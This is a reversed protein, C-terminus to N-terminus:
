IEIVQTEEEFEELNFLMVAIDKVTQKEFLEALPISVGFEKSIRSQLLIAKLSHGGLDFFSSSTSILNHPINLVEAWIKIIKEEIENGPLIFEAESKIEPDPLRNYDIKGSTNLPIEDIEVYFSPIMYEPLKSSLFDKFEKDSCKESIKVKDGPFIEQYFPIKKFSDPTNMSIYEFKEIKNNDLYLEGQILYDPNLGNESLKRTIKAKLYNGKSVKIGQYFIPFYVPLWISKEEITDIVEQEDCYLVLWVILGNFVSDKKFKLNINHEAELDILQNFNLDEFVGIDSIINKKKFSSLVLRLDFKRGINDFIKDVYYAAVEDFSADFDNKPLTVAAVKSISSSPIMSFNENMKPHIENIIKAAGEAGGISGVIESICCDIKEPLEIQTADGHIVIIKDELGLTKIKNFAKQYAEEIIEVAYIRKASEELCILSLICESGPGIELVVKDKVVKQIAKRYKENRLEDNAFHKYIRDDYVYYEALSPWLGIKEKQKFYAILQDENYINHKRIVANEICNHNTLCKEIEKLEIRYGRLEIQDDLRGKFEIEGNSLWRGCDGSKYMIEGPNFPDPIFSKRTLEAKGLYGRGVGIGSIYIDGIVGIAQPRLKKDLIYVQTNHIPKGITIIGLSNYNKTDWATACISTETPGYANIYTIEQNYKKILTESTESGATILVKLKKIVYDSVNSAFVPPLTVISIIKKLIDNEFSILSVKNEKNPIFLKAGNFLAMFIESVSADFSPSSYFMIHDDPTVKFTDIWLHNESVIGKHELLTGKPKGSTGSTYIVYALDSPQDSLENENLDINNSKSLETENLLIVKGDFEFDIDDADTAVICKIKSDNVIFQKREKPYNMDIPLYAGGSKLIGLIGIILEVSKEIAIGVIVDSTVGNKRLLNALCNSRKNLENYTLHLDDNVLAIKYPNKEAQIEFMRHITKNDPIVTKSNNFEYLVLEKEEESLITFEDLKKHPYQLCDDILTELKTAINCIDSRTYKVSNYEINVSINDNNHEVILLLNYAIGFIYEKKHLKKNLVFIDFLENKNKNCEIGSKHILTKLPFNQNETSDKISLGVKLLLDKFSDHIDINVHLLLLTNIFDVDQKQKFIPAGLLINNNNSMKQLLLFINSLLVTYVKVESNGCLKVIRNTTEKKLKIIFNEYVIDDTYNRNKEYPFSSYSINSSLLKEWYLKKNRRSEDTSNM